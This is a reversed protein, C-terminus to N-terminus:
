TMIRYLVDLAAWEKKRHKVWRVLDDTAMPTLHTMDLQYRVNLSEAAKEVLADARFAVGRHDAPSRKQVLNTIAIESYIWPSHTTDDGGIYEAPSISHPTNVFMICECSNIMKALATSLMLHVHTTSRNRREYSYRGTTRNYCYTDDVIQLLDDSCGWVCSDIFSTLGFVKYLYGSLRIVQEADRHSHSLFVEAKVPPFWSDIIRSALLDGSGDKFSEIKREVQAKNNEHMRNGIDFWSSFDEDAIDLNFGRYM